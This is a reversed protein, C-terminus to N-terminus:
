VVNTRNRDAVANEPQHARRACAVAHLVLRVGAGAGAEHAADGAQALGGADDCGVLLPEVARAIRRGSLPWSIGSSARM